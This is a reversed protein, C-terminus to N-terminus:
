VAVGIASIKCGITTMIYDPGDVVTFVTISATFTQSSSVPITVTTFWVIQLDKTFPTDDPAYYLDAIYREIVAGSGQDVNIAVAIPGPQTLGNSAEGETYGEFHVIVKETKTASPNIVTITANNSNVSLPGITGSITGVNNAAINTIVGCALPALPDGYSATGDVNDLMLSQGTTAGTLPVMGDESCVIVIGETVSDQLCANVSLQIVPYQYQGSVNQAIVPTGPTIGEGENCITVVNNAKIENLKYIGSGIQVNNGVILGDVSTLTIDICDDVDPATFDYKVFVGNQGIDECCPPPGIVFTTCAPVETGAPLNDAFCPNEISIQQAVADFSIVKFYGFNANWIYSGISVAFAGPVSLIAAGGCVPINWASQIEIGYAYQNVYINKTHDEPCSGAAVYFPQPTLSAGPYSTCPVTCRCPSTRCRNCSM